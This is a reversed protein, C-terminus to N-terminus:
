LSIEKSGIFYTVVRCFKFYFHQSSLHGKEAEMIVVAQNTNQCDRFSDYIAFIKSELSWKYVFDDLTVRAESDRKAYIHGIFDTTTHNVKSAISSVKHTNLMVKNVSRRMRNWNDGSSFNINPIFVVFKHVAHVHIVKVSACAVTDYSPCVFVLCIM